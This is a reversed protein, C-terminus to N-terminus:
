MYDTISLYNTTLTIDLNKDKHPADQQTIIRYSDKLCISEIAFEYIRALFM